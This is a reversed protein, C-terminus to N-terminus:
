AYEWSITTRPNDTFHALFNIPMNHSRINEFFCVHYRL